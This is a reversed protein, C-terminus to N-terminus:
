KRLYIIEETVTPQGEPETAPTTVDVTIKWANTGVGIVDRIATNATFEDVKENLENYVTTTKAADEGAEVIFLNQSHTTVTGTIAVPAEVDASFYYWTTVYEVPDTPEAGAVEETKTLLAYSGYEAAVVYGAKDFLVTKADHAYVKTGVMDYGYYENVEYNTPLKVIEKGEGDVFINVSVGGGYNVTTKYVNEAVYTLTDIDQGVVTAKHAYLINLDNDIVAEFAGSANVEKDEIPTLTVLNKANDNYKASAAVGLPAFVYGLEKNTMEGTVPNIVVQVLDYKKDEKLVDYNVASDPLTKWYQVFINGNDLLMYKADNWYSPWAENHYVCSVWKTLDFVFIENGDFVYGYDGKVADFDPRETMLSDVETAGELTVRKNTEKEVTYVTSTRTFENKNSNEVKLNTTITVYEYDQKQANRSVTLTDEGSYDYQKLTVNALEEWAKTYVMKVATWKLTTENYTRETITIYTADENFDIAVEKKASGGVLAYEGSEFTYLIEDKAADYIQTIVKRTDDDTTETAKDDDVTQTLKVLNYNVAEVTKGDLKDTEQLGGLEVEEELDEAKPGIYDSVKAAPIANVVMEVAQEKEAPLQETIVVVAQKCTDCAGNKDSDVHKTCTTTEEDCGVFATAMCATAMLLAIIKSKKM